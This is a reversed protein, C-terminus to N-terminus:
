RFPFWSKLADINRKNNKVTESSHEINEQESFNLKTGMKKILAKEYVISAAAVDQLAMGTSDFIIIEKDSERGPKKGAIIMGLEAHIGAITIKKQEIAHHLEGITASQEALDVVIKNLALLDPCLEQKEESDAGVAAIFTGPMIDETHIFPQKSPTCTVVIQSNRLSTILENKTIPIVELENSFSKCFNKALEEDIDFVYVKELPRVKMLAKLSIRGQNGCGCITAIKANLPALYKAAVATAAGTRIITIEISDMLALLRGNEADCVVIVGQITPLRYQKSNGPFNANIKAAFYTREFGLMGAKIHFGGNKSHIGLVKPPLAKEEAHLRFAQEVGVICEDITLLETVDRRKM